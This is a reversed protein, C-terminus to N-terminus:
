AVMFRHAWHQTYDCREDPCTWGDTTAVLVYEATSDTHDNPCTFPHVGPRQQWANLAEVQENTFPAQIKDEPM